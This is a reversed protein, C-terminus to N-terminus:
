VNGGREFARGMITKIEGQYQQVTVVLFSHGMWTELPKGYVKNTGVRGVTGNSRMEWAISRRLEGSLKRPPAGPTAPTTARYYPAGVKPKVMVRPAPVSLVEKVRANLFITAAKLGMKARAKVERAIRDANNTGSAM